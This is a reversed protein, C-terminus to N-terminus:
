TKSIWSGEEIILAMPLEPILTAAQFIMKLTEPNPYIRTGDSLHNKVLKLYNEQQEDLSINPDIEPICWYIMKVRSQLRSYLEM